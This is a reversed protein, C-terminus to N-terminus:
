PAHFDRYRAARPGQAAQYCPFQPRAPVLHPHQAAARRLVPNVEGGPGAEVLRQDPALDHDVGAVVRGPGRRRLEDVPRPPQEGGSLRGAHRMM